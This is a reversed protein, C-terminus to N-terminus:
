GVASTLQYDQDLIISAPVMDGNKLIAQGFVNNSGPGFPEVRSTDLSIDEIESLDNVDHRRVSMAELLFQQKAADLDQGDSTLFGLQEKVVTQDFLALMGDVDGADLRDNLKALQQNLSRLKPNQVDDAVFPKFGPKFDEQYPTSGKMSPSEEEWSRYQINQFEAPTMKGAEFRDLEKDSMAATAEDATWSGFAERLGDASMPQNARKLVNNFEALTMEGDSWKSMEDSSMVGKAGYLDAERGAFMPLDYQQYDAFRPSQGLSGFKAIVSDPFKDAIASALERDAAKTFRCYKLGFLMANEESSTIKGADLIQPLFKHVDAKSVRGDGQGQMADLMTGLVARDMLQGGFMVNHGKGSKVRNRIDSPKYLKKAEPQDLKMDVTPKDHVDYDGGAEYADAKADMREWMMGQIEDFEIPSMQGADCRGKEDVSMGDYVEGFSPYLQQLEDKAMPQQVQGLIEKFDAPSMEGRLFSSIENDDMLDKAVAVMSWPVSDVADDLTQTSMADLRVDIASAGTKPGSEAAAFDQARAGDIGQDSTLIEAKGAQQDAKPAESGIQDATRLGKVDAKAADPQPKHYNLVGRGTISTM